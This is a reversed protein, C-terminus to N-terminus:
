NQLNSYPQTYQPSVTQTMKMNQIEPCKSRLLWWKWQLYQCIHIDWVCLRPLIGKWHVSVGKYAYM